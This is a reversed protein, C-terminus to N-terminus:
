FRLNKVFDNMQRAYPFRTKKETTRLRENRERQESMKRESVRELSKVSQRKNLCLVSFITLMGSLSFLSHIKIGMKNKKQAVITSLAKKGQIREGYIRAYSKFNM